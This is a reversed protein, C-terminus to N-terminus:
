KSITDGHMDRMIRAKGMSLERDSNADKMCNSRDNGIMQNCSSIASNYNATVSSVADNYTKSNTTERASIADKMCGRRDDGTMQKCNEVATNYNSTAMNATDDRTENHAAFASASLLMGAAFVTALKISKM